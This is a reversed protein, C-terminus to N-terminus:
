VRWWMLLGAGMTAGLVMLIVRRTRPAAFALVFGVKILTNSVAAIIIAQAASRVPIRASDVMQTLSLAIADMDTLGSIFSAAYIGADHYIDNAARTAFVVIAYLFAFQLALKLSLPNPVPPFNADHPQRQERLFYWGTYALGPVSMVLLAPLVTWFTERSIAVVLIGVRVLMVTCALAIAMAFGNALESRERSQRSCALTTATSSALGGLLGIAGLGARSGLLRVAVYAFFGLGAVLVVMLWIYFPNFADYWGFARNPALPLIVGTVAAFVLANHVDQPTFRETWQHISKKGALLLIISVTLVLAIRKDEEWYVLGGILYTLLATALTTLGPMEVGSRMLLMHHGTLVVFVGIFGVVFLGSVQTSTIYASLTGLIAWIVFTRVGSLAPRTIHEQQGEWQRELGILAGLCGSVLLSRLIENYM